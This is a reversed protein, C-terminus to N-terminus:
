SYRQLNKTLTPHHSSFSSKQNRLPEVTNCYSTSNEEIKYHAAVSPRAPDSINILRAWGWPCGKGVKGGAVTGYVEDTTLAWSRGFLKVASHTGPDGWHVRNAVPTILKV